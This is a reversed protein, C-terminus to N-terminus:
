LSCFGNASTFSGTGQNYDALIAAWTVQLGCYTGGPAGGTACFSSGAPWSSFYGAALAIYSDVVSSDCAGNAVNLVAAIYQHALNVYANGGQVSLQMMDWYTLGSNFFLDTPQPGTTPWTHPETTSGTTGWYGQTLECGCTRSCSPLASPDTGTFTYKPNPGNVIGGSHNTITVQASNRLTGTLDLDGLTGGTSGIPDNSSFSYAFTYASSESTLGPIFTQSGLPVYQCEVNQPQKNSTPSKYQLCDYIQLGDAEATGTNWVSVEGYYTWSGDGNVCIDLTKSAQLTAGSAGGSGGGSVASAAAGSSASSGGCAVIGALAAAMAAHKAYRMM